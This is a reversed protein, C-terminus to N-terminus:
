LCQEYKQPISNAEEKEPVKMRCIYNSILICVYPGFISGLSRKNEVKEPLGLIEWCFGPIDRWFLNTERAELSIGFKKAGAGERPLVGVWRFIDPGLRELTHEKKKDSFSNWCREQPSRLHSEGPFCSWIKKKTRHATLLHGFLYKPLFM